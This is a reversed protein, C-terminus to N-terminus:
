AIDVTGWGKEMGQFLDLLCMFGTMVLKRLIVHLIYQDGCALNRM